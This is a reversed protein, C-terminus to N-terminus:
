IRIDKKSLHCFYDSICIVREWNNSEMKQLLKSNPMEKEVEELTKVTGTRYFWGSINKKEGMVVDGYETYSEERDFFRFFDCNKIFDLETINEYEDQSLEKESLDM